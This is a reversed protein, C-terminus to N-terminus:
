VPRRRALLWVLPMTLVVVFAAWVVDEITTAPSGTGFAFLGPAFQVTSVSTLQWVALNKAAHWVVPTWLSDTLVAAAGFALGDLTTSMM